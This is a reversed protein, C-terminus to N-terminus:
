LKHTETGGVGDFPQAAPPPKVGAGARRRAGDPDAV